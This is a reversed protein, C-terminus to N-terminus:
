CSIVLCIPVKRGKFDEDRFDEDMNKTELKPFKQTIFAKEWDDPCFSRANSSFWISGRPSLISLCKQILEKYDRRIDLDTTM